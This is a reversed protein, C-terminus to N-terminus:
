RTKMEDSAKGGKQRPASLIRFAEEIPNKMTGGQGGKAVFEKPTGMFRVEGEALLLVKSCLADVEELIHTSVIIAKDTAIRKIFERMQHKQNPDLGDTPEDLIMIDPNSLFAQALGVRRKYGKSLTHIPQTLVDFLQTDTIARRMADEAKKGKLGRLGAMIYLYDGVQMEHWLPAGEPLYGLHMKAAESQMVIDKGRLRVKGITVDMFGSVLRMTTTKGAGNPGLFGLIEGRAVTFSIDRLVQKDGFSHSVNNVEIYNETVM